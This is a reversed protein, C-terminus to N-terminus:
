PATKSAKRGSRRAPPAVTSGPPNRLFVLCAAPLLTLSATGVALVTFAMLTGLTRVPVFQSIIMAAFGAGLTLATFLISRGSSLLAQSMAAEPLRGVRREEMYRVTLHIAYDGVGIALAGLLMTSLDLPIGLYGLAGYQLAITLLLAMITVIAARISRVFSDIIIVLVIALTLSLLFDQLLSDEIALQMLTSGTYSLEAHSALHEEGVAKIDDYIRRTVQTSSSTTAIDILGLSSDLTMYKSIQQVDGSLQYILLEQAVEERTTPLADEGTLTHHIGRLVTVISTTPGVGDVDVVAEQFNLLAQLTAPDSLDGDVLVQVQSSGGFAEEVVAYDKRLPSDARFYDIIATNPVIQTAGIIAVVLLGGAVGLVWYRRRDVFRGLWGLFGAIAGPKEPDITRRPAPMINLIAPMLLMSALLASLVGGATLLGLVRVTPMASLAFTSLAAAIAFGSILVGLGTEALSKEVADHVGVGHALEQYYRGLLHLSFSSGVALIVVPAIVSLTSLSGGLWGLAGLSWVLGIVVTLLPLLAGRVSRFNLFLMLLILLAAIGGLLPMERQLTARMEEDILPGGVLHVPGMGAETWASNLASEIGRVVVGSDAYPDVEIVLNASSGDEAVLLGGRYLVSNELYDRASAIAEETLADPFLPEIELFGDDDRMRDANAASTVGRVGPASELATTLEKLASLATPSYIDGEVLAVMMTEAGFVEEVQTQLEGVETGKPVMAMVSSDFETRLIGLGLGVTLIAFIVILLRSHSLAVRALGKM